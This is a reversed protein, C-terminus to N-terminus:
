RGRRQRHLWRGIDRVVKGFERAKIIDARVVDGLRSWPTGPLPDGLRRIHRPRPSEDDVSM